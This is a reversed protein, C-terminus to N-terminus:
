IINYMLASRHEHSFICSVPHIRLSVHVIIIAVCNNIKNIKNYVHIKIAICHSRARCLIDM